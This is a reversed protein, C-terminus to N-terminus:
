TCYAEKLHAGQAGRVQHAGQPGSPKYYGQTVGPHTYNQSVRPKAGSYLRSTLTSVMSLMTFAEQPPSQSFQGVSEPGTQVQRVWAILVLLEKQVEPWYFEAFKVYDYNCTQFVWEIRRYRHLSWERLIRWSPHLDQAVLLKQARQRLIPLYRQLWFQMMARYAPRDCVDGRLIDRPTLGFEKLVDRPFYCIGRAADEKLDRLNNYFQDMAGFASAAERYQPPLFPFVQFFSGGLENLMTTYQDLTDIALNPNHYYVASQVYLDWAQMLPCANPVKDPELWLEGMRTLIDHYRGPNAKGTNFLAEWEQHFQRFGFQGSVLLEQEALRDVLRIWRIREVWEQRIEPALQMVWAVNDEDKLADDSIAQYRSSGVLRSITSASM